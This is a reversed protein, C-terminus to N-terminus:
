TLFVGVTSYLLVGRLVYFTLIDVNFVPKIRPMRTFSVMVCCNSVNFCFYNGNLDTLKSLLVSLHICDLLYTKKDTTM